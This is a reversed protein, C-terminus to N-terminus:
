RSRRPRRHGSISEPYSPPTPSDYQCLYWEREVELPLQLESWNFATEFPILAYDKSIPRFTHLANHLHWSVLDITPLCSSTYGVTPRDVDVPKPPPQQAQFPLRSLLPALFLFKDFDPRTTLQRGSFQDLEDTDDLSPNLSALAASTPSDM